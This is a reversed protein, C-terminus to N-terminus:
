ESQGDILREESKENNIAGRWVEEEQGTGGGGLVEKKGVERVRM